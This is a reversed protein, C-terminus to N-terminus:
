DDVQRQAPRCLSAPRCKLQKEFVDAALRFLKAIRLQENLRHSQNALQAILCQFCLIMEKKSQHFQRDLLVLHYIEPVRCFEDHFLQRRFELLKIGELGTVEEFEQQVM